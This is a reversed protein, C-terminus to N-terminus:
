LIDKVAIGDISRDTCGADSTLLGLGSPYVPTKLDDLLAVWIKYRSDPLACRSSGFPVM